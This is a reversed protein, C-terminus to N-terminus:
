RDGRNLHWQDHNYVRQSLENLNKEHEKLERTMGGVKSGIRWTTGFLAVLGTFLLSLLTITTSTV